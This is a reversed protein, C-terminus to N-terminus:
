GMKAILGAAGTGMHNGPGIEKIDIGKLWKLLLRKQTAQAALFDAVDQQEPALSIRNKM